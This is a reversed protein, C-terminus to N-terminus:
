GLFGVRRLNGIILRRMKSQTVDKLRVIRNDHESKRSSVTESKTERAALGLSMQQLGGPKTGSM